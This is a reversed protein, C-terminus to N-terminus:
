KARLKDRIAIGIILILGIIFVFLSAIVIDSLSELLGIQILGIAGLAFFIFGWLMVFDEIKMKKNNTM